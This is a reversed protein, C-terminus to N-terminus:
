IPLRVENAFWDQLQTVWNGWLGAAMLVGLVVLVAGGTRQLVLRHRRLFTMAGMGRRVGLAILLFPVGL